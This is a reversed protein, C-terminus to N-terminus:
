QAAHITVNQGDREFALGAPALVAQLLGDLDAERVDCSILADGPPPAAAALQPDWSITLGLQTALQDLVRGVPQNEITLTFRQEGAPPPEDRPPPDDPSDNRWVRRLMEHDEWRAAVLVSRGSRRIVIDPDAARLATLATEIRESEGYERTFAIPREVPKLTWTRGGASLEPTLDFGIALLLVRDIPAVAPLSRAAWLDHPMADENALTVGSGAVTEVLLERPTSLRPYTWPAPALWARAARVRSVAQRLLTARTALERASARPGFYVVDSLTSWGWPHEDDVAVLMDLAEHIPRHEVVLDVPAGLDVRRDIWLPLDHVDALRELAPGLQQGQWTLTVHADLQRALKANALRPTQAAVPPLALCASSLILALGCAAHRFRPSRSQRAFFM